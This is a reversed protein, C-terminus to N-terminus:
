KGEKREGRDCYGDDRTYNHVIIQNCEEFEIAEHFCMPCVKVDGRHKCDKCRTAQEASVAPAAYIQKESVVKCRQTGIYITKAKSLLGKRSILDLTQM